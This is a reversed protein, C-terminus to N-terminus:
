EFKKTADYVEEPGVISFKGVELWVIPSHFRRVYLAELPAM